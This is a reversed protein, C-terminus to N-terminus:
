KRVVERLDGVRRTRGIQDLHELLPIAWKRTLAFREKFEPVTFRTWGTALLDDGLRDLRSQAIFLGPGVRAVKRRQYLYRLVADFTQQRAGLSQCIESPQPPALGGQELAGLVRDALESEQASMATGRGPLDVLDAGLVVLKREALWGLYVEALPAAGAPLLRRVLEARPMGTALRDRRFFEELIEPARKAVKDYVAAAIWRQDAAASGKAERLAGTRAARELIAQVRAPQAGLRRALEAATTGAEGHLAVWHLVADAESGALAALAGALRAGRLRPWEPDLVVGGGVTSAPSLRRVVFRDGRAAVVPGALRIEVTAEGGPALVNPVLPRLRGVTETSFLHLRVERWGRLTQPADELLRMRALLSTTTAYAGPAALQAGRETDGLEVGTLQLATREGASAYPREQGHVQVSRVRAERRAPLLELRDQQTIRGCALTGTVLVGLGRLHFARDVPLRAPRELREVPREVRRALAVLTARLADLGEGSVSSVPVIPAGAFSTRALADTLELAAVDRLDPDVLDIKTLAVVGAPIALLSCIALHERTQPMVGEDAAVVLIMLDIGGLGALANHVFREHGPVDVFGLQLDGDSLHAFGIDITIGRAREEEWRDCNIGTLAEVLATKGHDIHGATGVVVRRAPLALADAETV